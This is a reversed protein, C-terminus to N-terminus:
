EKAPSYESGVRKLLHKLTVLLAYGLFAVLVHAKVRKELQHFLPRIALESKLTRFAAEVETLQMYKNWLDAAGNATLNTRLLYAGERAELWQQQEPKQRWVLRAGEKSDKIAMEYLDAVQPHSAQIRGLRMFMKDRDKLKGDAIRRSDRSRKKSRLWLTAGSPKRRRRGDWRVASSTRRRVARFRSRSSRWTRAFRKSIM